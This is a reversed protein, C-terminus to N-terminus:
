RENEMEERSRIKKLLQNRERLKKELRKEDINMNENKMILKGVEQGMHGIVDM